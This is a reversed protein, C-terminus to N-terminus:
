VDEIQNILSLLEKDQSFSYRPSENGEIVKFFNKVEEVYANEIISSSYANLHKVTSNDYCEISELKGTSLNKKVLGDPAGNWTLFVDEGWLCFDRVAERSVVDVAIMGKHGSSHEVLTMYNDNYDIPLHTNIGKITHIAIIAGFTNILWPLEIAFLERCGNTAKQSIFFDKLADWPHWDPLYQGVHYSYNINKKQSLVETRIFEIEKRYLMTSSLFLVTNKDEALQMNKEYDTDVLNIETFVNVSHKLCLTILEAHALPSTSIFAAYIKRTELVEQLDNTVEINYEGAVQEQREQNSDVGIIQISDEKFIARLCRIRRRGMSGLGIVVITKM